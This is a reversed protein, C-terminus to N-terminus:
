EFEGEVLEDIFPRLAKLMGKPSLGATDLTLVRHPKRLEQSSPNKMANESYHALREPIAGREILTSEHARLRILIGHKICFDAENHHRVDDIIAISTEGQRNISDQVADVWYDEDVMQRKAQGLAQLLPRVSEKHESEHRSLMYRAEMKRHKSWISQAVEQRVAEAFSFTMTTHTQSLYEELLQALSSKGTRMRGAIGIILTM